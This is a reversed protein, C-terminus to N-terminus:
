CRRSRTRARPFAACRPPTPRRMPSSRRSPGTRPASSRRRRPRRGLRHGLGGGGAARDLEPLLSRHLRRREGQGATITSAAGATDFQGAAVDRFITQFGTDQFEVELGLNEGIANLVEVDYGTADPPQGEAFPAYPTDLGVTLTGDTILGLDETSPPRRDATTAEDDGCGAAVFGSTLLAVLVILLWSRTGRMAQGGTKRRGGAPRCGSFVGIAVREPWRRDFNIAMEREWRDLIRREAARDIDDLIVTAGPALRSACCRCRRTARAGPRPSAGRAARRRAPPGGIGAVPRAGRRRVLRQRARRARAPSTRARDARRGRLAGRPRAGGQTPRGTRTTSSRTSAGRAPRRSRRARDGGHQRGLRVRDRDAGPTSRASSATSRRQCCRGRTRSPGDLPSGPQRAATSATSSSASGPPWRPGSTSAACRRSRAPDSGRGARSCSATPGTTAPAGSTTPATSSGMKASWVTSVEREHNWDVFLDPLTDLASREYHEDTRSM